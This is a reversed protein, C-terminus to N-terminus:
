ATKTEAQIHPHLQRVIENVIADVPADINVSVAHEGPAPEELTGFQSDLLSPPMFHGKRHEDRKRILDRSGKLYVLRVDSRGHVLIDRYARKLASCAIVVPRSSAIHNEIVGAVAHLWPLRDEDTLPIGSQMKKVNAAPHYLDADEGAFGLRRALAEAITSKGSGSVGMVIIAGINEHM